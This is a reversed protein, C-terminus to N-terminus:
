GGQREIHWGKCQECAYTGLQKGAVTSHRLAAKLAIANTRYRQKGAAECINITRKTPDKLIAM